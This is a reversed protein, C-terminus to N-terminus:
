VGPLMGVNGFLLDDVVAQPHEVVGSDPIHAVIGMASHKLRHLRPYMGTLVSTRVQIIDETRLTHFRPLVVTSLDTVGVSRTSERSHSALTGTSMVLLLVLIRCWKLLLWRLLLLGTARRKGPVRNGFERTQVLERVEDRAAQGLLCAVLKRIGSGATAEVVGWGVSGVCRRIVTTVVATVVATM